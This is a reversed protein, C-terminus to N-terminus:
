SEGRMGRGRDGAAIGAADGSLRVELRRADATATVGTSGDALRISGDRLREVAADASGACIVSLLAFPPESRADTRVCSTLCTSGYAPSYLSETADIDVRGTGLAAVRLHVETGGARLRVLTSTEQSDDTDLITLDPGLHWSLVAHHERRARGLVADHVVYVDGRRVITRRHVPGGPLRAYNRHEAVVVDVDVSPAAHHRLDVRQRRAPLFRGVFPVQEEGDLVMTNHAQTGAFLERLGRPGVYRFSGSDRLIHVGGLRLDLHLLDSEKPRVARRGVKLVACSRQGRFAIFSASEGRAPSSPPRGDTVRRDDGASGHVAGGPEPRAEDGRPRLADPALAILPEVWRSPKRVALAEGTMAAALALTPRFDGFTAPLPHFLWSGDNPGLLPVAGSQPDRMRRLFARMRRLRDRALNAIRTPVSNGAPVRAFWLLVALEDMVLRHYNTSEQVYDGAMSVQRRLARDLHREGVRRWTASRPHRDLLSGLILLGVAESIVHNNGQSAAYGIVPEIRQGSAAFVAMLRRMRAPTTAGADLLSRLQLLLTIARIATEQGCKWHIGANPPNAATWRELAHWFAEAFAEDGTSEYARVLNWAWGFRAPEWRLRLDRVASGFEDIRSWHARVVPDFAIAWDVRRGDQQPLQIVKRELMEGASDVVEREHDEGGISRRLRARRTNGDRDDLRDRLRDVPGDGVADALWPGDRELEEWSTCPLRRELWGARLRVEYWTRRVTADPGSARAYALATRTLGVM